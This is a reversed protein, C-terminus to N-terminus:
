ISSVISKRECFKRNMPRHLRSISQRKELDTSRAYMVTGNTRFEQVVNEPEVQRSILKFRKRCHMKLRAVELLRPQQLFFCRARINM